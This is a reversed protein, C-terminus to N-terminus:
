SVSPPSGPYFRWTSYGQLLLYIVIAVAKTRGNWREAAVAAALLILLELPLLTRWYIDVTLYTSALLMQLLYLVAFAAYVQAASDILYPRVVRVIASRHRFGVIAIAIAGAVFVRSFWRSRDDHSMLGNILRWDFGPLDNLLSRAIALGNDVMAFPAPPRPFGGYYADFGSDGPRKLVYNRLHWPLVMAVVVGATVLGHDRRDRRTRGALTLVTMFVAALAPLGAYRTLYTM